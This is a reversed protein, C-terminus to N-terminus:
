QRYGEVENAPRTAAKTPADDADRLARRQRLLDWCRDLEVELDQLLVKEEEGSITGKALQDRLDRETEVMSRIRGLIQRDDM